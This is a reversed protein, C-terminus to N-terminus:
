CPPNTPGRVCTCGRNGPIFRQMSPPRQVMSRLFPMVFASRDQDKTSTPARFRLQLSSMGDVEAADAQWGGIHTTFSWDAPSTGGGIEVDTEGSSDSDDLLEKLLPGIESSRIRAKRRRGSYGKKIWTADTMAGVDVTETFFHDLFVGDRWDHRSTACRWMTESDM